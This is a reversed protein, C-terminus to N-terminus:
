QVPDPILGVVDLATGRIAVLPTKKFFKFNMIM